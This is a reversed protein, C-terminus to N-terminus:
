TISVRESERSSLDFFLLTVVGAGFPQLPAGVIAALVQGAPRSVTYTILLNPLHIVTVIIATTFLIGFARWWAGKVIQASTGLAGPSDADEIVVAQVYFAWRVLFYVIVCLALAALPVVPILAWRYLAIFFGVSIFFAPFAILLIVGSIRLSAFFLSGFHDLAQRYSRVFGVACGDVANAIAHVLAGTVILGVAANALWLPATATANGGARRIATEGIIAALGVPVAVAAIALFMGLNRRYLSLSGGLIEELVM